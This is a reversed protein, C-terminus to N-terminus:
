GISLLATAVAGLSIGIWRWRSLKEKFAFVSAFTTLMLSGVGVVPYVVAPSLSTMSMLIIFLNLLVNGIGALPPIWGWSLLIQKSDTRDSKCYIVLCVLATLLMAFVMLQAGHKGEFAIQEYKQVISCGANGLFTLTAFFLWKGSIKKEQAETNKGNYLCFCLCLVVLALGVVTIPTVVVNWFIFGWISVGIIALQVVLSTLSASGTKFANIMGLLAITYFVGFGISYLLVKPEFSFDFAYIIGWGVIASIAFLLNYLPTVDRKDVNKKNYLTGCLNVSAAALAAGILYLYPIM